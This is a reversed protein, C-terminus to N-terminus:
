LVGRQSVGPRHSYSQTVALQSGTFQFASRFGHLRQIQHALCPGERSLPFKLSLMFQVVSLQFLRVCRILKVLRQALTAYNLRTDQLMFYCLQATGGVSVPTFIRVDRAVALNSTTVDM